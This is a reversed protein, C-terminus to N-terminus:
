KIDNWKLKFDEPLADVNSPYLKKDYYKEDVMGQHAYHSVLVRRVIMWARRQEPPPVDENCADGTTSLEQLNNYWEPHYQNYYKKLPAVLEDNSLYKGSAMWRQYCLELAPTHQKHYKRGYFAEAVHHPTKHVQLLQPKLRDCTCKKPACQCEHWQEVLEEEHPEPLSCKSGCGPCRSQCGLRRSIRIKCGAYANEKVDRTLEAVRDHINGISNLLTKFGQKFNSLNQIPVSMIENLAFKNDVSTALTDINLVGKEVEEAILRVNDRKSQQAIDNAVNFVNMIIQEADRMYMYIIAELRTSIERLSLECFYRNIDLVYKLIKEGNGQGFSEEYAQKQVTDHNIFHNKGIDETVDHLIKNLLIRGIEKFIEESVIKAMNRGQEFSDQMHRIQTTISAKWANMDNVVKEVEKEHRRQEVKIIEQVLIKLAIVAIDFLFAYIQLHESNQVIIDHNYLNGIFTFMHTIIRPDSSSSSFKNNILHIIDDRLQLLLGEIIKLLLNKNKNYYHGDRFWDEVSRYFHYWAHELNDDSVNFGFFTKFRSILSTNSHQECEKYQMVYKYIQELKKSNKQFRSIELTCLLNYISRTATNAAKTKLDSNYFKLIKATIQDPTDFESRLTQQCIELQTTYAKEIRKQLQEPDLNRNQDFEQQAADFLHRQANSVRADRRAKYLRDDFEERLLGQMNLVPPEILKEVKQKIEPSFCSREAKSRYDAFAKQMIKEHTAQMAACFRNTFHATALDDCNENTISSLLIDIIKRGENYVTTICDEIIERALDRLENMLSLEYLTKCALLNPGLEDIADWNSAIKQYLQPVDHYIQVNADMLSKLVIKRLENIAMPFTRNRWTQAMGLTSNYDSSFANPLLIVNQDNIELEDDISSKLFESDKYLNEKFKALQRFFIETASTDPQDRLVFLLKPRLPSRIQLKAYFSMGVLHELNSSFEGKHNILVLHSSLMALSVMQNDFTSGSEELSLLGETDFIVITYFQWCVVSLYMGITCRGASVRFNCGFTANMLSSKASSQEGIVTLVLPAKSSSQYVYKLSSQILKSSCRLPRGRLIHFSFGKYMLAAFKKALLETLNNSDFLKPLHEYLAFIEDCFLGITLDINFLQNEIKLMSNQRVKYDEKVIQTQNLTNEAEAQNGSELCRQFQEELHKIRSMIVMADNKAVKLQNSLHPEYQARWQELFRETILLDIYSHKTLLDIFFMTYQPIRDISQYQKQIEELQGHLDIPSEEWLQSLRKECKLKASELYSIPTVIKLNETKDSLGSFLSKLTEQIEFTYLPPPPASGTSKITLFYSQISFISECNSHNRISTTLSNFTEMLTQRLCQLQREENFKSGTSIRSLVPTTIWLTNHWNENAFVPQFTELSFTNNREGYKQDFVAIITPKARTEASYNMTKLLFDKNQLDVETVFIVQVTCYQQIATIIDENMTTMTGHVDFVVYPDNKTLSAFLTDICGSRLEANGETNLSDSRVNEFLYPLVSTKGLGIATPSGVCLLIRENSFCFTEALTNFNIKFELANESCTYYALPIPLSNKRIMNGLFRQSEFSLSEITCVVLMYKTIQEVIELFSETANHNETSNLCSSLTNTIDSLGHYRKFSDLIYSKISRSGVISQLLIRTNIPEDVIINFDSDLEESEPTVYLYGFIKILLNFAEASIVNPTVLTHV